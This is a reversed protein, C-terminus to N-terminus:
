PEPIGRLRHAEQEEVQQLLELQTALSAYTRSVSQLVNALRKSTGDLSARDQYRAALERCETANPM